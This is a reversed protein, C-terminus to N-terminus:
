IGHAPEVQWELWTLRIPDPTGGGWPLRVLTLCRPPARDYQTFGAANTETSGQPM